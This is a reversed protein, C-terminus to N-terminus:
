DKLAYIKRLRKEIVEIREAWRAQHARVYRSTLARWGGDPTPVVAIALWGVPYDEFEQLKEQFIWILDTGSVKAKAM